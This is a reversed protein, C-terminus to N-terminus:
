VVPRERAEVERAILEEGDCTWPALRQLLAEQFGVLDSADIAGLMLAVHSAGVAYHGAIQFPCREDKEMKSATLIWHQEIACIVCM